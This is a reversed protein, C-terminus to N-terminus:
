SKILIGSVVCGGWCRFQRRRQMRFSTFTCPLICALLHVMLFIDNPLLLKLGLISLYNSFTKGIALIQLRISIFIPINRLSIMQICNKLLEQNITRNHWSLPLRGLHFEPTLHTRLHRQQTHLSHHFRIQSIHIRKDFMPNIRIVNNSFLISIRM